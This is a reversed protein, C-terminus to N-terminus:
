ENYTVPVAVIRGGAIDVVPVIARTFPLMTTQGRADEIEIVDSAGFNHIARVTGLRKGGEDEVRLGILDAHYFENKAPKPLASRPVYLKMGKLADAQNRDDVGKLRIVVSDAKLQHAHNVAFSRGDETFLPGYDGISEPTATFTKVKVEGNLGQPGVVVGVLLGGPAPVPLERAM